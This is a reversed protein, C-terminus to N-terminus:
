AKRRKAKEMDNQYANNKCKRSHVFGKKLFELRKVFIRMFYEEEGNLYISKKMSPVGKKLQGEEFCDCFVIGKRIKL